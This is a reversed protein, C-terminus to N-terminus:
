YVGDIHGTALRTVWILTVALANAGILWLLRRLHDVTLDRRRNKVRWLAVALGQAAAILVWPHYAWAAGMDGRVLRGAARSAGCLPCATDAHLRLLCTVPGDTTPALGYVLTTAAVVLGLPFWPRNITGVLPAPGTSVATSPLLTSM